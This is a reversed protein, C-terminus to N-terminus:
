FTLHGVDDQDFVVLIDSLHHTVGQPGFPVAAEHNARFSTRFPEEPANTGVEDHETAQKDSAVAKLECPLQSGLCIHRHDDGRAIDFFGLLGLFGPEDTKLFREPERIQRRRNCYKQGFFNRRRFEAIRRGQRIRL